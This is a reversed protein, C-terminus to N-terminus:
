AAKVARLAKRHQRRFAVLKGYWRFMLGSLMAAWGAPVFLMWMTASGSFILLSGLAVVFAGIVLLLAITRSWILDRRIVAHFQGYAILGAIVIANAAGTAFPSLQDSRAIDWPLQPFRQDLWALLIYAAASALGSCGIWILVTALWVERTLPLLIPAAIPEAEIAPAPSAYPNLETIGTM